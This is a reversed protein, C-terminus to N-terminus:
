PLTPVKRAIEVHPKHKGTQGAGPKLHYPPHQKMNIKGVKKQNTQKEKKETLSYDTKM